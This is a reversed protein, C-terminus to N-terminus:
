IYTCQGTAELLDISEDSNRGIQLLEVEMEKQRRLRVQNKSVM